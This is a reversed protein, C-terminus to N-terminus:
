AEAELLLGRLEELRRSLQLAEESPIQRVVEDTDVDVVKVVLQGSDDDMNFHLNRRITQMHDNIKSVADDLEEYSVDSADTKQEENAQAQQSQELAAINDQVSVSTSSSSVGNAGSSAAIAQSDEPFPSVAARPAVTVPGLNNISAAM